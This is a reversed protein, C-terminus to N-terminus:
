VIKMFRPDKKRDLDRENKFGLGTSYLKDYIYDDAPSFRYPGKQQLIRKHKLFQGTIQGEDNVILQGHLNARQELFRYFDTELFKLKKLGLLFIELDDICVAWPFQNDDDFLELMMQLDSQIHGFKNYTVIITYLSKFQKPDITLKVNKKKDYIEFPKKAMFKEKVSYAQVYGYDITDKFDQWIGMYAKDPDYMPQRIKGAKAEVILATKGALILLDRESGGRELYYSPLIKVQKNFKYFDTFINELKKELFKDRAQTIRNKNTTLSACKEQLFMSMATLLVRYDIVLYNGDALGYIPKKYLQNPQSFFLYKNDASRSITLNELIETVLLPSCDRLDQISFVNLTSPDEVYEYNAIPLDSTSSMAESFSRGDKLANLVGDKFEEKSLQKRPQKLFVKDHKQSRLGDLTDYLLLVDRSNWGFASSLETDFNKYLESVKEISQEEFHLPGVHFFATYTSSGIQRRRFVEEPELNEFLTEAFPKLEGYEHTHIADMEALMSKLEPWDKNQDFSKQYFTLPTSTINLNFLYFLQRFPSVLGRILSGNWPLTIGNIYATMQRAFTDPGFEGVKDKLARAIRELNDM